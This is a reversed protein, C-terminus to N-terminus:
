KKRRQRSKRNEIVSPWGACACKLLDDLAGGEKAREARIKKGDRCPSGLKTWSTRNGSGAGTTLMPAKTSIGSGESVGM